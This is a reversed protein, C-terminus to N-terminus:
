FQILGHYSLKGLHIDSKKVGITQTQAIERLSVTGQHTNWLVPFTGLDLKRSLAGMLAHVERISTEKSFVEVHVKLSIKPHRPFLIVATIEPIHLKVYPFGVNEPVNTYVGTLTKMMDRDTSIDRYLTELLGYDNM